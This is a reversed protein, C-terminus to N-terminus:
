RRRPADLPRVLTPTPRGRRRFGQAVLYQHGGRCTAVWSRAYGEGVRRVAEPHSLTDLNTVADCPQGGQQIINRVIDPYEDPDPAIDALVAGPAAALVALALMLSKM